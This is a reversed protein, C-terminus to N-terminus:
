SAAIQEVAQVFMDLENLSTYLHPTVRVGACEEHGIATTVVRHRELLEGSIEQPEKGELTFNALGCSHEPSLSTNLRAGPIKAVRSAWYDKLYRLREEKRRTGIANHFFIAEGIALINAVPHTGIQEFKTIDDSGPDNAGFLPWIKGMRDKRVWLMGTGFPASLWKHLSTGYYDCGLEPIKFDLHAFAHAGDVLVEIGREHAMDCIRKVPFIQGTLNIMHCIMLLKTKGTIATRFIEVLEDHTRAPTPVAVKRLVVGDRRERQEWSTIMRPYDQTTTLIEDGPSLDLGFIITELAETANRTIAIEEAPTGALRSLRTRVNEKNPELHRWMNLSPAQNSYDLYRKLAEQVTRPSPSVGGANLHILSRDITFARQIERWYAEDRAVVAAPLDMREDTMAQIRRCWTETFAGAVVAVGTAKGVTRLFQRRNTSM